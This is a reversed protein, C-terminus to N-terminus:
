VVGLAIGVGVGGRRFMGTNFRSPGGVVVTLSGEAFIATESDGGVSGGEEFVSFGGGGGDRATELGLLGALMISGGGRGEERAGSRGGGDAAEERRAGGVRVGGALLSVLLM